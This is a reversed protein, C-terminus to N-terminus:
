HLCEELVKELKDFKAVEQYNAVKWYSVKNSKEDFVNLIKVKEEILLAKRKSVTM